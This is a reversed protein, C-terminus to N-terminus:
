SDFKLSHALFVGLFSFAGVGAFGLGFAGHDGLYGLVAPALGAGIFFGVPVVLGVSINRLDPTVAKSM